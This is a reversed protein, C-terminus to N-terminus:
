GSKMKLGAAHRAADLEIVVDARAPMESMIHRTLREYHAIFHRLAAENMLRSTDGGSRELRERLKREQEARWEYVVEFTPAQLLVLEDIRAFLARYRTGLQTNVYRRWVGQADHQRELENIPEQLAADSQPSAGVCWGEFLVIDVPAAVRLWDAVPRRDDLAKDFSPMAVADSGRLADFTREALAVDHTGPVGRTALLPHVQRALDERAGGGLYVDDLSLVAVTLGRDAFLEPLLTTLTSKGSGQAGCIGVLFPEEHGRKRAALHEALPVHVAEITELMSPPLRERELLANLTPSFATQKPM